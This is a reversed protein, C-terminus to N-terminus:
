TSIEFTNRPCLGLAFVRDFEYDSTFTWGGKLNKKKTVADM